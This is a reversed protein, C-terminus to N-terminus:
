KLQLQYYCKMIIDQMTQSSIFTNLNQKAPTVRLSNSSKPSTFNPELWTLAILTRRREDVFFICLPHLYNCIGATVMSRNCFHHSYSDHTNKRIKNHVYEHTYIFVYKYIYVRVCVCPKQQWICTYM